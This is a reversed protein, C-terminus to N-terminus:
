DSRNQSQYPTTFNYFQLMESAGSEDHDVLRERCAKLNKEFLYKTNKQLYTLLIQWIRNMDHKM